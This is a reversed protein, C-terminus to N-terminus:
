PDTSVHIVDGFPFKKNGNEPVIWLCPYHPAAKPFTGFGDTMFIMADPLPYGSGVYQEIWNFPAEFSTGGRGRFRM